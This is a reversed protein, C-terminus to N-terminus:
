ADMENMGPFHDMAIFADGEKKYIYTSKGNTLFIYGAKLVAYYRLAQEATKASIEIGPEKCEVIALTAGDRGYIVIDARLPKEGLSMQVESMMRHHPVGAHVLTEIFWQRVEEEPTAAVQKKRLPDWIQGKM